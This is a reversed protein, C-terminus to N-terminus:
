ADDTKEQAELADSIDEVDATVPVEDVGTRIWYAEQAAATLRQILVDDVYYHDASVVITIKQIM